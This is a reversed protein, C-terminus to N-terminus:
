SWTKGGDRSIVRPGTTGNRGGSTMNYDCHFRVSFGDEKLYYDVEAEVIMKSFFASLFKPLLATVDGEYYESQVNASQKQKVRKLSVAGFLGVLGAAKMASLIQSEDLLAGPIAEKKLTKGSEVNEFIKEISM